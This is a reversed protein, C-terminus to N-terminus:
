ADGFARLEGRCLRVRQPEPQDGGGGLERREQAWTRFTSRFGHTSMTVGARLTPFLRWPRSRREGAGAVREDFM